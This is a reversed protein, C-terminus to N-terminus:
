LPNRTFTKDAANLDIVGQQSAWCLTIAKLLILQKLLICM